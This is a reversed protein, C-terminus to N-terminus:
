YVTNFSGRANWRAGAAKSGAGTVIDDRNAYRPSASRFLEGRWAVTVCRALASRLRDTDPHIRM